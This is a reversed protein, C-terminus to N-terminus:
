FSAREGGFLPARKPLLLAAGNEIVEIGPKPGLEAQDALLGLKGV